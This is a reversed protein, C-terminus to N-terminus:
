FKGSRLIQVVVWLGLCSAIVFGIVGLAPYGFLDPKAGSTIVLSSAIVLAAVILGFTLRNSSRDIEGMFDELGKHLFEIRLKGELTDKMIRDAKKPFDTLFDRYDGLLSATEEFVTTPSFRRTFLKKAYPESEELVNVDPFLVRSLGELEILCKDFLLLERPFRVDHRAALKIYDMLLEGFSVYKLPRGFYCLMTDYYEREFRARDIGEPLIGMRMYIRTLAEFDEGAMNILIDALNHQMSRDIRGVIGFDVLAISSEDIVFINGSHLDGHFLGHDFVQKFFVDIILHAIKETDIGQEHLKKVRDVKVGRVRELTLVKRASLDWYVRPVTVRPDGKFNERFRETYSGELTFDLERKIINSMEDVMGQPDYPKSEPIYGVALRALYKLISIDTDIVGEIGPRQIKIVVEDGSATVARHVQAISAAAIPKEDIRSFAEAAPKKLEGEIVKKAKKFPFPPVEDQLKLLETIYEEPLIDPRTSLIQGVKIFTPGLEELALRLRVAPTVAEKERAIKKGIIRGPLSILRTLRLREMLPHFGHRVLVTVIHRLRRINKYALHLRLSRM